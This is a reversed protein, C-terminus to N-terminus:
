STGQYLRRGREEGEGCGGPPSPAPERVRQGHAHHARQGAARHPDALGHEQLLPPVHAFPRRAPLLLAVISLPRLWRIRPAFPYFYSFILLLLSLLSLIVESNTCVGEFLYSLTSHKTRTLKQTSLFFFVAISKEKEKVKDNALLVRLGSGEKELLVMERKALIEDEVVGLLRGETGPNLYNGVRAKEAILAAWFFVSLFFTKQARSSSNSHM